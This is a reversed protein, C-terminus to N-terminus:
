GGEAGAARPVSRSTFGYAELREADRTYVEFLDPDHTNRLGSWEANDGNLGVGVYEGYPISIESGQAGPFTYLLADGGKNVPYFYTMMSSPNADPANRWDFVVYVSGRDNEEYVLDKHHCSTLAMAMLVTMPLLVKTKM